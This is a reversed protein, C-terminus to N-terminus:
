LKKLNKITFVKLGNNQTKIIYTNTTLIRKISLARDQFIQFLQQDTQENWVILGDQYLGALYLSEAIHCISHAIKGNFYHKIVQDKTARLLGGLGALLLQESEEIAIMDWISKIGKFQKTHTIELKEIDFVQLYGRGEGLVLQNGVKMM